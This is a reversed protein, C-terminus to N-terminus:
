GVNRILPLDRDRGFRTPLCLLRPADDRERSVSPAEHTLQAFVTEGAM